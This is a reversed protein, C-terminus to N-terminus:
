FRGIEGLKKMKLDKGTKLINKTKEEIGEDDEKVFRNILYFKENELGDIIINKTSLLLAWLLDDHSNSPHYYKYTNRPTIEFQQETMQKFLNECKKPFVILANQMLVQMKSIMETKIKENFVILGRKNKNEIAPMGNQILLDKFGKENTWDYNEEYTQFLDYLFKLAKLVEVTNTGLKFEIAVYIKLPFKDVRTIVVAANDVQRGNDFGMTFTAGQRVLEQIEKARELVEEISKFYPQDVLLDEDSLNADLRNEDENICVGEVFKKKFFWKVPFCCSGEEQFQCLYEQAFLAAPLIKKQREIFKKDTFECEWWRQKIVTVGDATMSKFFHNKSKSTGAEIMTKKKIKGTARDIQRSTLFPRIESYYKEDVIDQSEDLIIRTATKGRIHSGPSASMFKCFNGNIMTISERNSQTMYVKFFKFENLLLDVKIYIETTQDEIPALMYIREKKGMLLWYVIILSVITSKGTQRAWLLVIEQTEESLEGEDVTKLFEKQKESLEQGDIKIYFYKVWEVVSQKTKNLIKLLKRKTIGLKSLKERFHRISHEM